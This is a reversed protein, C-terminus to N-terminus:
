VELFFFDVMRCVCIWDERINGDRYPFADIREECDKYVNMRRDVGNIFGRM